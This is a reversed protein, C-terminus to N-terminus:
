FSTPEESPQQSPSQLLSQGRLYTQLAQRKAHLCVIRDARKEWEEGSWDAPPHLREQELAPLDAEIRELEAQVRRASPKADKLKWAWRLHERIFLEGEGVYDQAQRNLRAQAVTLAPEASKAPATEKWSARVAANYGIKRTAVCTELLTKSPSILYM